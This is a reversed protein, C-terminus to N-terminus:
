SEAPSVLVRTRGAAGALAAFVVAGVLSAAAAV